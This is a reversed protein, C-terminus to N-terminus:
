VNNAELAEFGLFDSCFHKIKCGYDDWLTFGSQRARISFAWDDQFALGKHIMPLFIAHHTYEGQRYALEPYDLIMKEIVHRKITLSHGSAYQTEYLGGERIRRTFEEGSEIFNAPEIQHMNNKRYVGSIVDKDANVLRVITDPPFVVDDAANFFHTDGAELFHHMVPATTQFGPSGGRVKEFTVQFGAQQAVRIAVNLSDICEDFPQARPSLGVRVRVLNPFVVPKTSHM